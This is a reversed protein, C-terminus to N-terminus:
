FYVTFYCFTRAQLSHVTPLRKLVIYRVTHIFLEIFRWNTYVNTAIFLYDAFMQYDAFMSQKDLLWDSENLPRNRHWFSIHCIAWRFLKFLWQDVFCSVIEAVILSLCILNCFFITSFFRGFRKERWAYICYSSQHFINRPKCSVPVFTSM